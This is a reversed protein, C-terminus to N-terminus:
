GHSHVVRQESGCLVDAALFLAILGTSLSVGKAWSFCVVWYNSFDQPIPM